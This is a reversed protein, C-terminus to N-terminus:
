QEDSNEQTLAADIFDRIAPWDSSRFFAETRVDGLGRRIRIGSWDKGPEVRIVTDFDGDAVFLVHNRGNNIIEKM